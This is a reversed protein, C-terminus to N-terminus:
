SLALGMHVLRERCPLKGSAVRLRYGLPGAYRGDRHPKRTPLAGDYRGGGPLPSGAKETALIPSGSYRGADTSHAILWPASAQTM